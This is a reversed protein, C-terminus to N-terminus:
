AWDKVTTSEVFGYLSRGQRRCAYVVDVAKVTKRRAYGAYVITDRIINELFVKLIGRTEDYVLGSIRRAGGVRAVRRIQSKTIGMVSSRCQKKRYREPRSTAAPVSAAAGADATVGAVAGTAAGAAAAAGVSAVVPISPNAATSTLDRVRLDKDDSDDASRVSLATPASCPSTGGSELDRGSAAKEHYEKLCEASCLCLGETVQTVMSCVVPMHLPKCCISCTNYLPTLTAVHEQEAFGCAACFLSPSLARANMSRSMLSERRQAETQAVQLQVALVRSWCNGYAFGPDRSLRRRVDMVSMVVPRHVGEM